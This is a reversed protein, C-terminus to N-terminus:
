SANSEHGDLVLLLLGHWLPQLAKSRKLRTYLDHIGARITDCDTLAFVRGLTDASLIPGGLWEGWFRSSRTQELANLSGLRALIM